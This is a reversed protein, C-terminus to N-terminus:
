TAAATAPTSAAPQAATPGGQQLWREPSELLASLAIRITEIPAEWMNPPPITSNDFIDMCANAEFVLLSGDPRLACDIGFFDLGLTEYIATLRNGIRPLTESHFRAFAEREEIGYNPIRCDSHLKWGTGVIMHRLFPRGGVMVIRHKRYLGDADAFDVFQSLYVPPRITRQVALLAAEDDVKILTQGGHMGARRVLLPYTMGAEVLAQTLETGLVRQRLTRPALVGPIEALRRAVEDRGSGLVAQPPNFTPRGIAAAISAAKRLAGEYIDPDAMYNILPLRPLAMSKLAGDCDLWLTAMRHELHRFQTLFSATGGIAFKPQHFGDEALIGCLRNAPVGRVFLYEPTPNSVISM